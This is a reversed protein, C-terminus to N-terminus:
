PIGWKCCILSIFLGWVSISHYKLAIPPIKGKKNSTSFDPSPLNLNFSQLISLLQSDSVLLFLSCLISKANKVRSEQNKSQFHVGVSSFVANQREVESKKRVNGFRWILVNLMSFSWKPWFIDRKPTKIINITLLYIILLTAIM